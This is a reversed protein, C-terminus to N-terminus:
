MKMTKQLLEKLKDIQKQNFIKISPKNYIELPCKKIIIKKNQKLTTMKQMKIILDTLLHNHFNFKKNKLKM